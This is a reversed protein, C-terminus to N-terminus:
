RGMRAFWALPAVTALLPVLALSAALFTPV